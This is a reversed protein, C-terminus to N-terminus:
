NPFFKQKAMVKLFDMFGDKKDVPEPAKPVTSANKGAEMLKESYSSM